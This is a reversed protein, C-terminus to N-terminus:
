RLENVKRRRKPHNVQEKTKPLPDIKRPELTRPVSVSPRGTNVPYHIQNKSINERNVGYKRKIAERHEPTISGWYKRDFKFSEKEQKAFQHRTDGKPVRKFKPFSSSDQSQSQPSQIKSLNMAEDKTMGVAKLREDLPRGEAFPSKVSGKKDLLKMKSKDPASEKRLLEKISPEMLTSSGVKGFSRTAGKFGAALMPYFTMGKMGSSVVMSGM